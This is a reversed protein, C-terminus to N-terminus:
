QSKNILKIFSLNYIDKYDLQVCKIGISEFLQKKGNPLEEDKTYVYVTKKQTYNQNKKQLQEQYIHREVLLWRLDSEQSNLGLGMIILDNNFFPNIWTNKGNWNKKNIDKLFSSLKNIIGSYDKNTICLSSSYRKMGHIYWVAFANSSNENKNFEEERFYIDFPYHFNRRKPSPYFPEEVKQKLNDNKGKTFQLNLNRLLLSDYNTTLIPISNNKAYEIVTKHKILDDNEMKKEFAAINRCIEKKLICDVRKKTEIKKRYFLALEAIEPYTIGELNFEEKTNNDTKLLESRMDQPFLDVLLKTWSLKKNDSIYNVGNGILFAPNTLEIKEM